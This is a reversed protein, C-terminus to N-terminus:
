MTDDVGIKNLDKGALGRRKLTTAFVPILQFTCGFGIISIFSCIVVHYFWSTTWTSAIVALLLPVLCGFLPRFLSNQFLTITTTM